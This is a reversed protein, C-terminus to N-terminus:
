EETHWTPSPGGPGCCCPDCPVNHSGGVIAFCNQNDGACGSCNAACAGAAPAGGPGDGAAPAMGGGGALEECSAREIAAIRESDPSGAACAEICGPLESSPAKACGLLKKCGRECLSRPSNDKKSCGFSVALVVICLWRM